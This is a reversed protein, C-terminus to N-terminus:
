GNNKLKDVTNKLMQTLEPIVNLLFITIAILGLAVFILTLPSAGDPKYLVEARYSSEQPIYYRPASDEESNAEKIISRLTSTKRLAYRFSQKKFGLETLPLATEESEAKKELLAKVLKGTTRKNLYSIVVALFVGLMLPWLISATGANGGTLLETLNM